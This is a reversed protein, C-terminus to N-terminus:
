EEGALKGVRRARLFAEVDARLYGIRNTSLQVFPLGGADPQQRKRLLTFTSVGLMEAVEPVTYIVRKDSTDM